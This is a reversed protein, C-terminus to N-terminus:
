ASLKTDIASESERDTPAPLLREFHWKQLLM